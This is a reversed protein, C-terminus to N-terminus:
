EAKLGILKILRANQAIERHIHAAFQEQTNTQPELGESNLSDKMDDTNVVKGIVANLRAVIDKSVGAPVLVGYWGYRDYGPLGSEDFTPLSPLLLARKATTVAIPRLKGLKVFSLATTIAIFSMDIHGAATAVLTEAAGKYPVHVTNVKAMLNFLENMLHASSGIGFSGYSLKGPQLRALAILEKVNHAPVSPHIVLVFPAIAVLSVPALDRELDYPLKARLAPQIADAATVLLLTYGDPPSTAVRETAITGGAGTRNEVIVPQGLQESLKQAVRRATIDTGGGATFGVVIRIPKVPYGQASSDFALFSTCAVIGAFLRFIKRRSAWMAEGESKLVSVTEM